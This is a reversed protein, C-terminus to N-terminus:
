FGKSKIKKPEKHDLVEVYDLFQNPTQFWIRQVDEYNDFVEPKKTTYHVKYDHRLYPENSTQKFYEPSSPDILQTMTRHPSQTGIM